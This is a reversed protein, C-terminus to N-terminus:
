STKTESVDVTPSELLATPNIISKLVDSGMGLGIGTGIGNVGLVIIRKPLMQFAAKQKIQALRLAFQKKLSPVSARISEAKTIKALLDSILSQLAAHKTTVEKQADIVLQQRISNIAVSVASEFAIGKNQLEQALALANKRSRRMETEIAKVAAELRMPKSGSLIATENVGIRIEELDDLIANETDPMTVRLVTIGYDKLYRNLENAVNVLNDRGTFKVRADGISTIMRLAIYRAYVQMLRMALAPSTNTVFLHSDTVRFVIQLTINVSAFDRTFNAVSIKVIQDCKTAVRFPIYRLFNFEWNRGTRSTETKDPAGKLCVVGEYGESIDVKSPWAYGLFASLLFAAFFPLSLYGWGNPLTVALFVGLLLPGIGAISRKDPV